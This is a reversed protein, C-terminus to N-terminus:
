DGAQDSGESEYEYQAEETIEDLISNLDVAGGAPLRGLKEAVVADIVLINAPTDLKSFDPLDPDDRDLGWAKIYANTAATMGKSDHKDRATEYAIQAMESAIMRKMRKDVEGQSGFIEETERIIRWASAYPIGRETELLEVITGQSYGKLLFGLCARCDEQYKQMDASLRLEDGSLIAERLADAKRMKRAM